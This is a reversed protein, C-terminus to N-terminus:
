RSLPEPEAPAPGTSRSRATRTPDGVPGAPPAALSKRGTFMAGVLNERHQRSALAVGALHALVLTLTLNAFVEHLAEVRNTGSDGVVPALGALPGSFEGAGLLLVGSVGTALISLLLAVVMAGGAPNHGLHREARLRLAAWLYAIVDRPRSVFDTFRAHRTGTFGWVLRFAVLGLAAYGAWVHLDLIRDEVLYAAAFAVALSWHFARVLPDWVQITSPKSM